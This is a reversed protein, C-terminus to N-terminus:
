HNITCIVMLVRAERQIIRILSVHCKSQTVETGVGFCIGSKNEATFVFEESREMHGRIVALKVNKGEHTCRHMYVNVHLGLM